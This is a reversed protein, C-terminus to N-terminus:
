TQQDLWQQGYHQWQEMSWGPPLGQPPLPPGAAVPQAFMEQTGGFMSNAVKDAAPLQNSMDPNAGGSKGSRVLILVLGFAILILVLFGGGLGVLVMDVGGEPDVTPNDEETETEDVVAGSPAEETINFYLTETTMRDNGDSDVGTIVFKVQDLFDLSAKETPPTSIVVGTDLEGDPVNYQGNTHCIEPNCIQWVIQAGTLVLDSNRTFTFTPVAGIYVDEAAIMVDGNDGAQFAWEIPLNDFVLVDFTYINKKAHLDEITLYVTKTGAEEWKLTLIGSMINYRAATSPSSTVTLWIEANDDDLDDMKDLMPIMMETGLKLKLDDFATMNIRPADNVNEINVWMTTDSFQVGDSARLTVEISGYVDEDVTEINITQGLMETTILGIPNAAIVEITLLGAEAPQGDDTTDTLYPYLNVSTSGGELINQPSLAQWRPQGNEIVNFHIPGTNSDEGDSITVTISQSRITGTMADRDVTPFYVELEGSAAHWAIFNPNNPEISTITLQSLPTEPDKVLGELSVRENTDVKVTPIGAYGADSASLIDPVGNMLEFADPVVFWDSVQSRADTFRVRIDFLGAAAEEPPSIRFTYRENGTGPSMLCTSSDLPDVCILTSWASSWQNQGAPSHELEPIMTSMDDVSDRPDGTVEIEVDDGRNLDGSGVVFPQNARPARDALVYADAYNNASLKDDVLNELKVRFTLDNSSTVGTTDYTFYVSQQTGTSSFSNLSISTFQIETTGDLRYFVINGGDSYAEAGNNRVNATVTLTDGVIYSSDGNGNTVTFQSVGLDIVPAMTSDSAHLLNYRAAGSSWGSQLWAVTLMNSEDSNHVSSKPVTWSYSTPTSSLTMTVPGNNASNTLWRKWCHSPYSSGGNYPRSRCVEETVAVLLAVDSTGTGLYTAEITIDVNTGNGVQFVIMTYDNVSSHMNNARGGTGSYFNDYFSTGGSGSEYCGSGGHTCEGFYIRPASNGTDTALHSVRNIPSVDGAGASRINGYNTAIYSIYVFEDGNSNKLNKLSPTASSECPPCNQGGIYEALVVHGPSPAHMAADELALEPIESPESTPVKLTAALGVSLMMTVFLLTSLNRTKM